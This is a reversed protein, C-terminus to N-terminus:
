EFTYKNHHRMRRLTPNYSKRAFLYPRYKKNIYQDNYCLEPYKDCDFMPTANQDFDEIEEEWSWLHDLLCWIVLVIALVLLIGIFNM